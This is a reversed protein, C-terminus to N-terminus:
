ATLLGSHAAANRLWAGDQELVLAAELAHSSQDAAHPMFGIHTRVGPDSLPVAELGQQHRITGVLAGPKVSSVSAWLWISLSIKWM